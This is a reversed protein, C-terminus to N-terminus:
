FFVVTARRGTGDFGPGEQPQKFHRRIVDLFDDVPIKVGPELSYLDNMTVLRPAM